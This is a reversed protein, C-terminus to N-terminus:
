ENVQSDTRAMNAREDLFTSSVCAVYLEKVGEANEFSKQGVKNTIKRGDGIIRGDAFLLLMHEDFLKEKRVKAIDIQFSYIKEEIEIEEVISVSPNFFEKFHSKVDFVADDFEITFDPIKGALFFPLFYRIIREVITLGNLSSCIREFQPKVETYYVSSCPLISM